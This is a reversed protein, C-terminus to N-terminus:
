LFYILDFINARLLDGPSPRDFKIGMEKFLVYIFIGAWNFKRGLTKYCYAGIENRKSREINRARYLGLFYRKDNFNDFKIEKVGDLGVNIITKNITVLACHSFQCRDYRRILKSIRSMNNFTFLTDGPEAINKILQLRSEHEEQSKHIFLPPYQTINELEKQHVFVRVLHDIAFPNDHNDAFYKSIEQNEIKGLYERIICDKLIDEQNELYIRFSNYYNCGWVLFCDDVSLGIFDHKISSIIYKKNKFDLNDLVAIPLENLIFDKLIRFLHNSKIKM